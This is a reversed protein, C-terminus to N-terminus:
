LADAKPSEIVKGPKVPMGPKLALLGSLIVTDGSSLGDVISIVNQLRQGTLVNQPQAIGNKILMVQQGNLVPIVADTPVLIAARNQSTVLQVRAFNGPQLLGSPNACRARVTLTRTGPDIQNSFAYVVANFTQKLGEVTFAVKQGIKLERIFREPVEFEIKIPDTQQLQILVDSPSVYAGESLKRLGLRGTFPALIRTKDLAVQTVRIDARTQDLALAIKDYEEEAIGDIALLDKARKLERQNYSENVKLKAFQAELEQRDLEALLGGKTILGGEKFLLKTMRGSREPRVDVVENPLVNGTTSLTNELVEAATIMYDVVMTMPPGGPGGPGGPGKGPAGSGETKKANCSFVLVALIPLCLISFSSTFLRM